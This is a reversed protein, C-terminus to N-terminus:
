PEELGPGRRDPRVMPRPDDACRGTARLNELITDFAPDPAPRAAEPLPGTCPLMQRDALAELQRQFMAEAAGFCTQRRAEDALADCRSRRLPEEARLASGLTWEWPQNAQPDLGVEAIRAAVSALYGPDELPPLPAGDRLLHLRCRTEFQGAHSCSAPM